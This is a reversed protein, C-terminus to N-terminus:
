HEHKEGGGHWAETIQHFRNHVATLSVGISDPSAGTNVQDALHRSDAKLGQLLARTNDNNIKSPLEEAAWADAAQALETALKRAPELNASDKFPHFAEAMIMHYSDMTPWEDDTQNEQKAPGSCAWFILAFFFLLTSKRAIMDIPKVTNEEPKLDM